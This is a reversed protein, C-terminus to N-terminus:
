VLWQLLWLAVMGGATTWAVSRTYWAIAAAILAAGLRLNSPAVVLVDDRMLVQPVVIAAFVAAPVFRLPARVLPSLQHPKVAALFSLRFLFTLAAAGIIMAWVM